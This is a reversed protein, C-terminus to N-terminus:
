VEKEEESVKKDEGKKLKVGEDEKPKSGLKIPAEIKLKKAETKGSDVLEALILSIHSTRKRLPTARGRAKPAWRKLTTGEDVRIEKIFLNSKDLEFNNTASAIASSILKSIPKAALKNTFRLQDLSQLAGMGRVIDAVLRVKQPSMRIHKAKAKVEM